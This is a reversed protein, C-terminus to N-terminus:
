KVEANMISLQIFGQRILQNPPIILQHIKELTRSLSRKDFFDSTQFKMHQIKDSQGGLKILNYADNYFRDVSLIYDNLMSKDTKLFEGDHDEYIERKSRVYHKRSLKGYYDNFKNWLAETEAFINDFKQMPIHTTEKDNHSAGENSINNGWSILETLNMLVM